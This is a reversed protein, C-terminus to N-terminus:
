KRVGALMHAWSFGSVRRWSVEGRGLERLDRGGM